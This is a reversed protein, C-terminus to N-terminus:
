CRIKCRVTIENGRSAEVISSTSASGNRERHPVGLIRKSKRFTSPSQQAFSEMKSPNAFLKHLEEIDSIGESQSARSLSVLRSLTDADALSINPMSGLTQERAARERCDPEFPCTRCLPNFHWRVKEQPQAIIKPLRSFLFGRMSDSILNFDVTEIMALSPRINSSDDQPPLWIGGKGSPRFPPPLMLSLCITYFYIQVLHSTKHMTLGNPVRSCITKSVKLSQSAKADIVKWTIIGDESRRVELLDPKAMGFRVPLMGAKAFEANLADQPPWFSLGALFFHDREDWQLIELIEHGELSGAFVNSLLGEDDLWRLLSTEWEMGRAFQANALESESLTADHQKSERRAHRPGHYSQHLYLDCGLHHATAINTASLSKQGQM